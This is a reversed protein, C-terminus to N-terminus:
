ELAPVVQEMLRRANELAAATTDGGLVVHFADVGAERFVRFEQILEDPTGRSSFHTIEEDRRQSHQRADTITLGEGAAVHLQLAPKGLERRRRNASETSEVAARRSLGLPQGAASYSGSCNITWADGFEIARKLARPSYGGVWIPPHPKQVPRMLLGVDNATVYRGEFTVRPREWLAIMLRLYEDARAGRESMPIGFTRFEREAYGVGCGFTIRGHSLVDASAIAHAQAFPQRYPLVAVRTAVRVRTTVAAVYTLAVFIEPWGEAPDDAHGHVGLDVVHDAVALTDFGLGELTQAVDRLLPGPQRGGRGYLGPLRLEVSFPVSGASLQCETLDHNCLAYLGM